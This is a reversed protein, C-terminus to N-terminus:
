VFGIILMQHQGAGIPHDPNLTAYAPDSRQRLQGPGNQHPWVTGEPAPPKDNLSSARHRLAVWTKIAIKAEKLRCVASAAACVPVRDSAEHVIEELKNRKEAM